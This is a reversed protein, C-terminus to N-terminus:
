RNSHNPQVVLCLLYTVAHGRRADSNSKVRTTVQTTDLKVLICERRYADVRVLASRTWRADGRRAKGEEKSVRLRVM